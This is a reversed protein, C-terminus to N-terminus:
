YDCDCHSLGHVLFSVLEGVKPAIGGAKEYVFAFSFGDVDIGCEQADNIGMKAATTGVVKYERPQALADISPQADSSVIM